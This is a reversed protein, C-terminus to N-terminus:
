NEQRLCPPTASWACGFTMSRTLTTPQSSGCSSAAAPIPAGRRIWAEFEAVVPDPLRKKPPMKLDDTAHRLAKLLLSRDPDGAVFLPGTDGGKRLGEATDLLLGGKLKEAKTSHCSFCHEALVPRIKTEFFHDDDSGGHAIAPLSCLCLWVIIGRRM